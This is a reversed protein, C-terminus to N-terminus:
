VGALLRAATILLGCFSSRVEIHPRVLQVYSVFCIHLPQDYDVKATLLPQERVGMHRAAHLM